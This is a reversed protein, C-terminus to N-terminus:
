CANFPFSFASTVFFITELSEANIVSLHIRYSDLISIRQWANVNRQARKGKAFHNLVNSKHEPCQCTGMSGALLRWKVLQLGKQCSGWTSDSPNSVSYVSFCSLCPSVSNRDDLVSRQGGIWGSELHFVMRHSDDQVRSYRLSWCLSSVLRLTMIWNLSALATVSFNSSTEGYSRGTFVSKTWHSWSSNRTLTNHQLHSSSLPELVM